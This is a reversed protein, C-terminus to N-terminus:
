NETDNERISDDITVIKFIVKTEDSRNRNSCEGHIPLTKPYSRKFYFCKTCANYEEPTGRDNNPDYEPRAVVLLIRGNDDFTSGVDREFLM